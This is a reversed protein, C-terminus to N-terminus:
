CPLRWVLHSDLGTEFFDELILHRSAVFRFNEPSMWSKKELHHWVVWRHNDGMTRPGSGHDKVRPGVGLVAPDWRPSHRTILQAGHGAAWWRGLAPSRAAQRPISQDQTGFFRLLKSRELKQQSIKTPPQNKLQKGYTYIFAYIYVYIYIDMYIYIYGYIYICGTVLPKSYCLNCWCFFCTNFISCIKTWFFMRGAAQIDESEIPGLTCFKACGGRSPQM